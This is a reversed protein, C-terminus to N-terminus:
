DTSTRWASEAHRWILDAFSESNDGVSLLGRHGALLKKADEASLRIVAEFHPEVLRSSVGEDTDADNLRVSLPGDNTSLLADYPCTESARPQIRALIGQSTSQGEIRFRVAQQMRELLPKLVTHPVMARLEKNGDRSVVLLEDGERVYTGLKREIQRAVITGDHPAHIQLAEIQERVSQEQEVLADCRASEAQSAAHENQLMLRRVELEAKEIEIALKEAESVLTPNRLSILLDGRKVKTGSTVHISNVFGNADSRLVDNAVYQVIAPATLPLPSHGVCLVIALCTIGCLMITACRRRQSRSRDFFQRFRHAMPVAIWAFMGAAAIVIGAGHFLKAAAILLLVCILQKWIASAIGYITILCRMAFSMEIQSVSDGYFVRRAIRSLQKQSDGYLDTWGMADALAYYGDFRMLPNANFLLTMVSASLAVSYCWYRIMPDNTMSWAIIAIAATVLEVYMGALAVHVRQWRSRFGWVASVDVYPLPAFLIFLVGLQGVRGGYRKCVIAHGFEHLIKLAITVAFLIAAGSQSLVLENSRLLAPWNCGAILLALLMLLLGILTGKVSFLFGCWRNAITAVADLQFLSRKMSLPNSREKARRVKRDSKSKLLRSAHKSNVTHALENTVMWRCLESADNLKLPQGPELLSFESFAEALTKRGDLLRVFAYENRGLRFHKASVPDEMIVCTGTASQEVSTILDHRITVVVTSEDSAFHVLDTDEPSPQNLRSM